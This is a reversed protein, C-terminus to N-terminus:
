TSVTQFCQRKGAFIVCPLRHHCPPLREKSSNGRYKMLCVENGDTGERDSSANLARGDGDDDIRRAVRRRREDADESHQRKRGRSDPDIASSLELAIKHDKLIQEQHLLEEEFLRRALEIDSADGDQDSRSFRNLDELRVQLIVQESSSIVDDQPTDAM